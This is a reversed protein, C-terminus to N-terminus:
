QHYSKLESIQNQYKIDNQNIQNQYKIDNQNIQKQLQNKLDRLDKQFKELCSDQIKQCVITNSRKCSTETWKGKFQGESFMEVCELDSTNNMQSWNEYTMNTHSADDWHFKQTKPDRKAGLWVNNM